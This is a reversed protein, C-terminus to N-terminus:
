IWGESAVVEPLIYEMRTGRPLTEKPTRVTSARVIADVGEANALEQEPKLRVAFLRPREPDTPQTVTWLEPASWTVTVILM